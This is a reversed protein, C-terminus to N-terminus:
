HCDDTEEDESDSGIHFQYIGPTSSTATCATAADTFHAPRGQSPSESDEEGTFFAASSGGGTRSTVSASAFSPVRPTSNRPQWRADEPIASTSPGSSAAAGTSSAGHCWLGSEHAEAGIHAGGVGSASGNGGHRGVASRAEGTASPAGQGIGGGAGRLRYHEQQYQGTAHQLQAQRVGWFSHRTYAARWLTLQSPLIFDVLPGVNVRNHRLSFNPNLYGSTYLADYSIPLLRRSFEDAATAGSANCGAQQHPHQTQRGSAALSAEGQPRASHARPSTASSSISFPSPLAQGSRPLPPAASAVPVGWQTTCDFDYLYLPAAPCAPLPAQPQPAYSRGGTMAAEEEVVKGEQGLPLLAPTHTSPSSQAAAARQRPQKGAALSGSAGEGNGSRPYVAFAQREVADSCSRRCSDVANEGSEEQELGADGMLFASDLRHFSADVSVAAGVSAEAGGVESPPDAHSASLAAATSRPLQQRLSGPTAPARSHSASSLLLVTNADGGGDSHTDLTSRLPSPQVTVPAAAYAASPTATTTSLLLACWQSLSLTGEAVRQAEVQQECNVSFTSILQSHFLDLLLCVFQPTYEFCAPYLVVLQRIADLLQALIPAAESSSWLPVKPPKSSMSSACVSPADATTASAGRSQRADETAAVDGASGGGGLAARAKQVWRHLARERLGDAAAAEHAEVPEEDFLLASTADSEVDDYDDDDRAAAAAATLPGVNGSAQGGESDSRPESEVANRAEGAALTHAALVTPSHSAATAAKRQRAETAQFLRQGEGTASTAHTQAAAAAPVQASMRKAAAATDRDDRLLQDWYDDVNGRVATSRLQTPHGFCLVERELLICLGEVTRYYPDLLLQALISIQPTRDWGDSCNLFVVHALTAHASHEYSALPAKCSRAATATAAASTWLGRRSGSRPAASASTTAKPLRFQTFAHGVIYSFCNALPGNHQLAPVYLPDTPVGCVRRAAVVATNLLMAIYALWEHQAAPMMATVSASGVPAMVSFIASWRVGGLSFPPRSPASTAATTNAAYDEAAAGDRPGGSEGNGDSDGSEGASLKIAAEADAGSSLDRASQPTSPSCGQLRPLLSAVGLGSAPRKATASLEAAAVVAAYPPEGANQVYQTELRGSEDGRLQYPADQTLSARLRRWAKQVSHINPLGAYEVGGFPYLLLEMTGGGKGVNAFAARASRLDMVFIRQATVGAAAAFASLTLRLVDRLPVVLSSTQTQSSSAAPAARGLRGGTMRSTWELAQETPVDAVLSALTPQASRVLVGGTPAYYFAVAEVRRSMRHRGDVENNEMARAVAAPVVFTSPYTPCFAYEANASTMSWREESLGQRVFERAPDYLWWTDALMIPPGRPPPPPPSPLSLMSAEMSLLSPSRTTAAAMCPATAQANLMVAAVTVNKLLAQMFPSTAAGQLPVNTALLVLPVMCWLRRASSLFRNGYCPLQQQQPLACWPGAQCVAMGRPQTSPRLPACLLQHVENLATEDEFELWVTQMEGSQLKLVVVTSSTMFSPQGPQGSHASARPLHHRANIGTSSTATSAVSVRHGTSASTVSSGAAGRGGEGAGGSGSGGAAPVALTSDSIAAASSSPVFHRDRELHDYLKRAHKVAFVGGASRDVACPTVSVLSVRPLILLEVVEEEESDDDDNGEDGSNNGDACKSREAESGVSPAGGRGLCGRGGGSAQAWGSGRTPASPMGKQQRRKRRAKERRREVEVTPIARLIIDQETIYLGCMAYYLSPDKTADRTANGSGYAPAHVSAMVPLPADLSMRPASVAVPSMVPTETPAGATAPTAPFGARAEDGTGGSVPQTNDGKIGRAGQVKSPVSSKVADLVTRATESVYRYTATLGAKGARGLEHIGGGAGAGGGSRSRIVAGSSSPTYHQLYSQNHAHGSSGGGDDGRRRATQQGTIPDYTYCWVPVYQPLLSLSDLTALSPLLRGRRIQELRQAAVAAATSSFSVSGSPAFSPPAAPFGHFQQQQHQQSPDQQESLVQTVAASLVAVFSAASYLGGRPRRCRSTQPATAAADVGGRSEMWHAEDSPLTEKWGELPTASTARATHRGGDDSGGGIEGARHTKRRGSEAAPAAPLASKSVEVTCTAPLTSRRQQVHAQPGAAVLPTSTGHISGSVTTSATLQGSVCAMDDDWKDRMGDPSDLSSDGISGWSDIRGGQMMVTAPQQSATVRGVAANAESVGHMDRREQLWADPRGRRQVPQTAARLDATVATSVRARKHLWQASPANRASTSPQLSPPSPVGPVPGRSSLFSPLVQLLGATAAAVSTASSMQGPERGQQLQAAQGALVTYPSPLARDHTAAAAAAAVAAVDPASHSSKCPKSVSQVTFSIHAPLRSPLPQPTSSRVPPLALQRDSSPRRREMSSASVIHTRCPSALPPPSTTPNSVKMLANAPQPPATCQLPPSLPTADVAAEKVIPASATPAAPLRKSAMGAARQWLTWVDMATCSLGCADQRQEEAERDALAAEAHELSPKSPAPLRLRAAAPAGAGVRAKAASALTKSGSFLRVRQALYLGWVAEFPTHSSVPPLRYCRLRQQVRLPTLPPARADDENFADRLADADLQSGAVAAADRKRSVLYAISFEISMLLQEVLFVSTYHHPAAPPLPSPSSLPTAQAPTQKMSQHWPAETAHERGQPDQFFARSILTPTQTPPSPPRPVVGASEQAAFATATTGAAAKLSASAEHHQQHKGPPEVACMRAPPDALRQHWYRFLLALLESMSTPCASAVSASDGEKELAAAEAEAEGERTRTATTEPQQQPLPPPASQTTPTSAALVKASLFMGAVLSSNWEGLHELLDSVATEVDDDDAAATGAVRPTASEDVSVGRHRGDTCVSYSLLPVAEPAFLPLPNAPWPPIPWVARCVVGAVGVAGTSADTCVSTSPPPPQPLTDAERASERKVAECTAGAGRLLTQADEEDQAAAASFASPIGHGDVCVVASALLHRLPAVPASSFYLPLLARPQSSRCLPISSPVSFSLDAATTTAATAPSLDPSPLKGLKDVVSRSSVSHSFPPLAAVVPAESDTDGVEGAAGGHGAAAAADSPTAAAPAITPLYVLLPKATQDSAGLSSAPTLLSATTWSPPLKHAPATAVGAGADAGLGASDAYGRDDSGEEVTRQAPRLPPPAAAAARLLPQALVAVLCPFGSAQLHAWVGGNRAWIPPKKPTNHATGYVHPGRSANADGSRRGLDLIVIGTEMDVEPVALLGTSDQTAAGAADAIVSPCCSPEWAADIGVISVTPM